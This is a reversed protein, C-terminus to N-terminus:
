SGHVELLKANTADDLAGTITLDHDAQFEEVALELEEDAFPDDPASTLYGLNSLRSKAGFVEDIPDLGGIAFVLELPLREGEAEATTIEVTAFTSQPSVVITLDGAGTTDSATEVKDVRSMVSLGGAPKGQSTLLRLRLELRARTVHFTHNQGTTVSFKKTKREPIYIDDGALLVQPNKRVERLDANEAAKWIPEFSQYGYKVAIGSAHEGSEVIHHKGM